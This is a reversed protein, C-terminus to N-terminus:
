LTPPADPIAPIPLLNLNPVDALTPVPPVPRAQLPQGTFFVQSPPPVNAPPTGVTLTGTPISGVRYSALAEIAARAQAFEVNAELAANEAATDIARFIDEVLSM